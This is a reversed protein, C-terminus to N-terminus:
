IGLNTKAEDLFSERNKPALSRMFLEIEGPTTPEDTRLVYPGSMDTNFRLRLTLALVEQGIRQATDARGVIKDKILMVEWDSVDIWSDIHIETKVYRVAFLYANM